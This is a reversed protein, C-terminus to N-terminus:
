LELGNEEAFGELFLALRASTTSLMIGREVSKKLQKLRIPEDLKNSLMVQELYVKALTDKWSDNFVGDSFIGYRHTESPIAYLVNINESRSYGGHVEHEYRVDKLKEQLAKAHKKFKEILKTYEDWANEIDDWMDLCAQYDKLAGTDKMAYDFALDKCENIEDSYEDIKKDIEHKIERVWFDKETKTLAM